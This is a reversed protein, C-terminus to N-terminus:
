GDLKNDTDPQLQAQIDAAEMDAAEMDTGEIQSQLDAAQIREEESRPDQIQLATADLMRSKMYEAYERLGSGLRSIRLIHM